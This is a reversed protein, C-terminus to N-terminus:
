LMVEEILKAAEAEANLTECFKNYDDYMKRYYENKQKQLNENIEAFKKRLDDIATAIFSSGPAGEIDGKNVKRIGRKMYIGDLKKAERDNGSLRVIMYFLEYLSVKDEELISAITKGWGEATKIHITPRVVFVKRFERYVMPPLKVKGRYTTAHNYNGDKSIINERKISKKLILIEGNEGRCIRQDDAWKIWKVLSYDYDTLGRVCKLITNLIVIAREGYLGTKVCHVQWPKM